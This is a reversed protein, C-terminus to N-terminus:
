TINSIARRVSHMTDAPARVTRELLRDAPMSRMLDVAFVAGDVEIRWPFPVQEPEGLVEPAVLVRGALQNFRRNSM